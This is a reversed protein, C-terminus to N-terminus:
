FLFSFISFFLFNFSVTPAIISVGVFDPLQSSSIGFRVTLLSDASLTVSLSGVTLWCTVSLESTRDHIAGYKKGHSILGVPHPLQLHSPLKYM